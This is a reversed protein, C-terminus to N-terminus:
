TGRAFFSSDTTVCYTIVVRSSSPRSLISKRPRRLRVMRSSVTFSTAAFCGPKVSASIGSESGSTNRISESPRVEPTNWISDAPIVPTHTPRLGWFMSSMVAM